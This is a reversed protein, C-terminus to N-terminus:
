NSRGSQKKHLVEQAAKVIDHVSMGYYEYLVESDGSEGYVDPIAVRKLITPCNESLVESVASGLGGIINHDEVTVIAGTTQAAKIIAEQDIPKLTHSELVQVNINAQHLVVKIFNNIKRIYRLL